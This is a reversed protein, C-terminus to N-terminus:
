EGRGRTTIVDHLEQLRELAGHPPLQGAEQAALLSAAVRYYESDEPPGDGFKLRMGLRRDAGEVFEAWAHQQPTRLQVEILHGDYRVILHVARYGSEKPCVVYDHENVVEWRRQRKVDRAVAYVATQSSLVARCGGIDGMRALNMKPERELKDVITVLRKLRQAIIPLQGPDNKVVYYRLGAARNTLPAGHEARFDQVVPIAAAAAAEIAAPRPEPCLWWGRLAEGARSVASKSHKPV